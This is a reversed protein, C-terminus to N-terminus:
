KLQDLEISPLYFEAYGCKICCYINFATLRNTMAYKGEGAPTIIETANFADPNKDNNLIMEEDPHNICYIKNNRIPM